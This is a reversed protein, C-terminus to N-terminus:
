GEQLAGKAMKLYEDSGSKIAFEAIDIPYTAALEVIHEKMKPWVRGGAEGYTEVLRELALEGHTRLHGIFDNSVDAVKAETWDIFGTVREKGDILIHGPHLDGHIFATYEPWFSDDEVWKQWRTWLKESVGLEAKVRDMRERMQGRVETVSQVPLGGEAVASMPIRHLSVMGKALTSVYNETLNEPDIVWEYRQEEKNITGAPIGELAKYAILEPVAIEWNPAQVSLNPLVIDLIAKEKKMESQVDQRRPIRLIWPVDDKGIIQIVIFDLGSDNLVWESNELDFGHKGALEKIEHAEM